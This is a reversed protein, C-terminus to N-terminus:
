LEFTLEHAQGATLTLERRREFAQADYLLVSVEGAPVVVGERKGDRVTFDHVRVDGQFIALRLRPHGTMTVHLRAGPSLPPLRLGETGPRVGPLTTFGADATTATM